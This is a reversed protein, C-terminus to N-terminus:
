AEWIISGALNQSQNDQPTYDLNITANGLAKFGKLSEVHIDVDAGGADVVTAGGIYFEFPNLGIGSKEEFACLGGQDVVTELTGECLLACALLAGEKGAPITWTLHASDKTVQTIATGLDSIAFTQKGGYSEDGYKLTVAFKQSQNDFPTFYCSVVSGAPLPKNCKYVNEKIQGGGETVCTVIRTFVEFPKWDVSNNELEVLGGSNVITEETPYNVVKVEKLTMVKGKGGPVTITSATSRTTATLAASVTALQHDTM